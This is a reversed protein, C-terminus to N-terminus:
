FKLKRKNFHALTTPVDEFVIKFRNSYSFTIKQKENYNYKYSVRKMSLSKVIYKNYLCTTFELLAKKEDKEEFVKEKKENLIYYYM